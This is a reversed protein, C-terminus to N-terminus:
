CSRPVLLSEVVPFGQPSRGGSVQKYSPHGGTSNRFVSPNLIQLYYGTSHYGVSHVKRLRMLGLLVRVVNGPVACILPPPTGDEAAPSGFSRYLSGFM